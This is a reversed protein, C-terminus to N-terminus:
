IQCDRLLLTKLNKAASLDLVREIPNGSGYLYSLQSPLPGIETILNDACRLMWLTEPLRGLSTLM